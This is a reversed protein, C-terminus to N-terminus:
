RIPIKTEDFSPPNNLLYYLDAKINNALFKFAVNFDVVRLKSRGITSTVVLNNQEFISTLEQTRYSINFDLYRVQSCIPINILENNEYVPVDFVKQYLHPVCMAHEVHHIFTMSRLDIGLFCMKSNLKMLRDWPTDFGYSAGTDKNCIYEANKGVAIISTLPNISRHEFGNNFIYQPFVGLEKSPPTKNIDFPEKNRAYEYFYAPIALTGNEGIVEFFCDKITKLIEEGTCDEWLGLMAVNSHVLVTDGDKINCEKLAKIFDLKNIKKM